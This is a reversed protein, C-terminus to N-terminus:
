GGSSEFFVVPVCRNVRLKNSELTVQHLVVLSTGHSAAKKVLPELRKLVAAQDRRNLRLTTCSAHPTVCEKVRGAAVLKGARERYKDQEVDPLARYMDGLAKKRMALRQPGRQDEALTLLLQEVRSELESKVAAGYLEAASRVRPADGVQGEADSDDEVNSVDPLRRRRTLEARSMRRVCPMQMEEAYQALWVPRGQTM